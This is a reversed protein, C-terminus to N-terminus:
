HPRAMTNQSKQPVQRTQEQRQHATRSQVNRPSHREQLENFNIPAREGTKKYNERLDEIQKATGEREKKFAERIEEEKQNKDRFANDVKNVALTDGYLTLSEKLEQESIKGGNAAKEFEKCKDDYYGLSVKIDGIALDNGRELQEAADAFVARMTAAGLATQILSVAPDEALRQQRAGPGGYYDAVRSLRHDIGVSRMLRDTDSRKQLEDNDMNDLFTGYAVRRKAPDNRTMAMFLETDPKERVNIKSTVQVNNVIQYIERNMKMVHQLEEALVPLNAPNTLADAAQKGSTVPKGLTQSLLDNMKMNSATKTCDALLKGFRESRLKIDPEEFIDVIKAAAAQAKEMGAASGKEMSRIQSWEMGDALLQAHVLANWSSVRAKHSGMYDGANDFIGSKKFDNFGVGFLKRFEREDANKDNTNRNEPDGEVQKRINQIREAAQRETTERYANFQEKANDRKEAFDPKMCDTYGVKYLSAQTLYRAYQTLASTLVTKDPLETEDTRDAVPPLDLIPRRDAQIATKKMWRNLEEFNKRENTGLTEKYADLDEPTLKMQGYIKDMRRIQVRLVQPDDVNEPIRDVIQQYAASLEKQRMYRIQAMDEEAKRYAMQKDPSSEPELHCGLYKDDLRNIEALEENSLSQQEQGEAAVHGNRAERKEKLFLWKRVEEPNEAMRKDAELAYPHAKLYESNTNEMKEIIEYYDRDLGIMERLHKEQRSVANAIIAQHRQDKGSDSSWLKAAAKDRSSQYWKKGEDFAKLDAKVPLIVPQLIGDENTEMRVFEVRHEGGAIEDMIAKKLATEDNQYEPFREYANVGDIYFRKVESEAHEEPDDEYVGDPERFPKTLNDLITDTRGSNYARVNRGFDVRLEKIGESPRKYVNGHKNIYYGFVERDNGLGSALYNNRENRAEESRLNEYENALKIAGKNLNETWERTTIESAEELTKGALKAGGNELYYKAPLVLDTNKCYEFGEVTRDSNHLGVEAVSKTYFQAILITSEMWKLEKEKTKRFEPSAGAIQQYDTCLAALCLARDINNAAKRNEDMWSYEEAPDSFTSPEPRKEEMDLTPLVTSMLKSGAKYYIDEIQEQSYHTSLVERCYVGRTEAMAPDFLSDFSYGESMMVMLVFKASTGTRSLTNLNHEEGWDHWRRKWDDNWNGDEKSYDKFFSGSFFGPKEVEKLNYHALPKSNVIEDAEEPRTIPYKQWIPLGMNIIREAM